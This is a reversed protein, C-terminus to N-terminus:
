RVQNVPALQAAQATSTIRIIKHFMLTYLLHSEMLTSEVHQLMQQSLLRMQLIKSSHLLALVCQKHSAATSLGSQFEQMPLSIASVILVV